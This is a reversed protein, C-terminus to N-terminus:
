RFSGKFIGILTKVIQKFYFFDFRYNKLIFKLSKLSPEKTAYHYSKAKAVLKKSERIEKYHAYKNLIYDFGQNMYQMNGTINQGEKVGYYALEKNVLGIPFKEAIRIWMDWDELLSNEDFQGVTEITDRKIMCGITNVINEQLVDKLIWGEKFRNKKECLLIKGTDYNYSWASNYVMGFEPHQNFHNIKEQISDPTLWDDASLPTIYQGVSNQYLFNVNKSIGKSLANAFAKHPIGSQALIDRGVTFTNDASANDLYIIEINPYTQDKLSSICKKIYAEHNMSLLLISVLPEDTTTM